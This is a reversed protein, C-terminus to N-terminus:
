LEVAAVGCAAGSVGTDEAPAEALGAIWLEGGREEVKGYHAHGEFEFRCYKM